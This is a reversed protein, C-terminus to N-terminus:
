AAAVKLPEGAEDGAVVGAAIDLVGPEAPAQQQLAGIERAAEAKKSAKDKRAKIPSYLAEVAAKVADIAAYEEDTGHKAAYRLNKSFVALVVNRPQVKSDKFAERVDRVTAERVKNLDGGPVILLETLMKRGTSAYQGATSLKVKDANDGGKPNLFEDMVDSFVQAATDPADATVEQVKFAINRVHTWIANRQGNAQDAHNKSDTAAKDAERIANVDDSVLQMIKESREAIAQLAAIQEAITLPKNNAKANM